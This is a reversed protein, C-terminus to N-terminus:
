VGPGVGSPKWWEGGGSGGMAIVSDNVEPLTAQSARLRPVCARSAPEGFGLGRSLKRGIEKKRGKARGQTVNRFM